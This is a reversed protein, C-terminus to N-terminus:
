NIEYSKNKRYSKDLNGTIKKTLNFDTIALIELNEIRSTNTTQHLVWRPIHLFDGKQIDIRVNEISAVGSGELVFYITEHAHKHLENSGSPLIKLLRPDFSDCLFPIRGVEFNYETNKNSYLNIPKKNKSFYLNDPNFIAKKNDIINEFINEFRLIKIKNFIQDFFDERLKLCQDLKYKIRDLDLKKENEISYILIKEITKAHEEDCDVHLTFFKLDSESFGSSKLGNIFIKYLRPIIYETGFSLVTAKEFLSCENLLKLYNEFFDISFDEFIIKEEDVDLKCLFKKFLNSHREELDCGGSEEWLNKTLEARLKDCSCTMMLSSLLRSFNKSYYLYQSFIFKYQNRDIKENQIQELLESNWITHNDSINKLEELITTIKIM